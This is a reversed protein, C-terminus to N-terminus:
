HNNDANGHEVEKAFFIPQSALKKQAAATQEIFFTHFASSLASWVKCM